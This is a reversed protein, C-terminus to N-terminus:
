KIGGTGGPGDSSRGRPRKFLDNLDLAAKASLSMITEQVAKIAKDKLSIDTYIDCLKTEEGSYVTIKNMAIRGDTRTNRFIEPTKEVEYSEKAQYFYVPAAPPENSGRGSENGLAAMLNKQFEDAFAEYMERQAAVTKSNDHADGFTKTLKAKESEPLIQELIFKDREDKKSLGPSKVEGRYLISALPNLEGTPAIECFTAGTFYDRDEVMKILM